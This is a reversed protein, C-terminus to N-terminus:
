PSTGSAAERAPAAEGPAGFYLAYEKALARLAPDDVADATFKGATDLLWTYGDKGLGHTGDKGAAWMNFAHTVKRQYSREAITRGGVIVEYKVVLANSEVIPVLGLTSGALFASLFGGAQGGATPRMSHTVLLTIPSGYHEDDVGKFAPHKKVGDLLADDGISSVFKMDPFPAPDAARAVGAALALFMCLMRAITQM